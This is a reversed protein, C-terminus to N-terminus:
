IIRKVKPMKSAELGSLHLIGPKLGPTISGVIDQMRLAAAGNSTAWRLLIDWNIAPYSQKITYLESLINLEKNSALSDTGMCIKADNEMFISIDPLRNEIYINANPCFCWYVEPLLTQAVEIDANTTYTNHVFIFSHDPSLWRLYTQLSSIGSPTFFDDNIGLSHLLTQIEGKKLLYYEDEAKSEQNHISIISGKTHANILRFLTDSVSYPAHPVIFQGLRKDGVSQTAFEDYVQKSREFQKQPTASFGISEIFTQFHLHESARLDLTDITNAIDGVAVVGNEILENQAAHRAIQKEEETFGDREKMVKQLFPVLETREPIIGKMHSLELHCHTNVFGPCLTGEYFICEDPKNLLAQITGDEAISIASGDPLWGHGDHIRTASIVV